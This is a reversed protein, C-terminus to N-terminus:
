LEKTSNIINQFMDKDRIEKHYFEKFTSSSSWQDRKIIETMSVGIRSAKSTVASRISHVKFIDTHIDSQGIMGVIWRCVTSSTDPKHPKIVGM